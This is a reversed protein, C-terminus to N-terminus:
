WQLENIFYELMLDSYYKKIEPTLKFNKDEKSYLDFSNFEKVLRYKEYDSEDMFFSYSDKDHWPYFSHYRIIDWYKKSILHNDKNQLLVQYLYEDHGFSIHLNDLGCSKKYIGMETNNFDPHNNTADYCVMTEPLRCGVVFTDGVVAYDPEGFTFLVKGFDHILGILQYEKDDPYKKRIREATQYAHLSNPEDLDPDSPDIYSDLFGFAKNIPMKFNNLESYKQKMKLVFDLTQNEYMNKYFEYQKSNKQYIRLSM